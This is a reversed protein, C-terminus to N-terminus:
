RSVVATPPSLPCLASVDGLAAKSGLCDDPALLSESNKRHSFSIGKRRSNPKTGLHEAVGAYEKAAIASLVEVFREAYPPFFRRPNWHVALRFEVPTGEQVLKQITLDARPLSVTGPLIAVGCGAKALALLTTPASSELFINPRIHAMHCAADFLDRTGFGRHLLLLPKNELTRVEVVDRREEREGNSVALLPMTGVIRSGAHLEPQYITVALHLVGRRILDLLMAAHSETLRVEVGPLTQHFQHLVAPFLRQLSQPTAGAHLVGADGRRLVCAREGFAEAREPGKARLRALGRRRWHLKRGAREFLLIRLERELGHVQRSLTPQSIRIRGAANSVNGTEAVAVFYRLHKLDM